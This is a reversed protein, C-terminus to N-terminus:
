RPQLARRDAARSPLRAVGQSAALGIVIPFWLWRDWLSNAVLGSVIYGIYMALPGVVLPDRRGLWGSRIISVALAVFGTIALIGGIDVIQIFINHAETANGFGSGMIPHHDVRDIVVAALEAREDNSQKTGVSSQTIRGLASDGPLTVLGMAVASGGIAVVALLYWAARYRHTIALYAGLGVLLAIVAARSGSRSLGGLLVVACAAGYWRQRVSAGDVLGALLALAFAASIGLVNPHSSLGASRGVVPNVTTFSVISSVTCGLVYAWAMRRIEPRRPALSAVALPMLMTTVVFRMLNVVSEGTATSNFTGITGALAFVGASAVVPLYRDAPVSRGAWLFRALALTAAALLLVDALAGIPGVRTADMPSTFIALLFLLLAVSRIELKV